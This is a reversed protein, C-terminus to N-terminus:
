VQHHQAASNGTPVGAFTQAFDRYDAGPSKWRPMPSPLGSGAVGSYTQSEIHEIDNVSTTMSREFSNLM